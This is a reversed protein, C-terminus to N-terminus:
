WSASAHLLALPPTLSLMSPDIDKNVKFLAEDVSPAKTCEFISDKHMTCISDIHMTCISDIHWEVSDIHMTCIFDIHM